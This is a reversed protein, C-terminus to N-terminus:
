ACSSVEEGRIYDVSKQAQAAAIVIMRKDNKLVHLWSAIYAASNDITKREIGTEACLFAAGIEAVLEEHSYNESGFAAHDVVGSRELRSTHGTSHVLEHFLVEYYYESTDFQQLDPLEVTDTRPIYCARDRNLNTITPRNPMAAVVAECLDLEQLPTEADAVPIEIGEAQELNFVTYSKCFFVRRTRQEEEENEPKENKIERWNMYVVPTGHEGKRVYGGAQKIQKYTAWYECEYGRAALMLWNVGRYARGSVWNKQNGMHWPRHWPVTGEELQKIIENTIKEYASM